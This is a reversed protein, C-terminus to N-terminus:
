GAIGDHLIKLLSDPPSLIMLNGRTIITCNLMHWWSRPSQTLAQSTGVTAPNEGDNAELKRDVCSSYWMLACYVILLFLYHSVQVRLWWRGLFTLALLWSCVSHVWEGPYYFVATAVQTVTHVLQDAIEKCMAGAHVYIKVTTPVLYIFM